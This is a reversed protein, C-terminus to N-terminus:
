HSVIVEYRIKKKENPGLAPYNRFTMADVKYIKFNSDNLKFRGSFSREIEIIIKRDLTNVLSTMYFFHEKYSKVYNRKNWTSSVIIDTRKYDKVARTIRIDGNKGSDLKVKDGRELKGTAFYDLFFLPEAGCALIDNVCMAVLDIGISGHRQLSRALMLKTGVGDTGSVLVPDRFKSSDLQFLGGFGGLGAMVGPRLTSKVAPRIREVLASGADIDVGADRYSLGKSPLQKDSVAHRSPTRTVLAM